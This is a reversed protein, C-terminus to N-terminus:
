SVSEAIGCIKRFNKIRYFTMYKGDHFTNSYGTTERVVMVIDEGDYDWDPYQFAHKYASCEANLMERDVLLTDAVTWNVLNASTLIGLVNRAGAVSQTLYLSAICIYTETTKDYKIVFRSISTPLEILGVKSLAVSGISEALALTPKGSGNYTVKLVGAYGSFPSSDLRYILYVEGNIEVPNGEMVDWLHAGVTKGTVSKYWERSLLSLVHNSSSDSVIWNCLKTPDAASPDYGLPDKGRPLIMVGWDLAMYLDGASTILAENVASISSPIQLNRVTIQQTNLNITGCIYRGADINYQTVSDVIYQSYEPKNEATGYFQNIAAVGTFYLQGNWVFLNAWYLNDIPECASSWTKGGDNSVQIVTEHYYEKGAKLICREFSTYLKNGFTVISPSYSVEYYYDTYNSSNEPFYDGEKENDEIVVRSQETDNNPEPMTTSNFFELMRARYDANTYNGDLVDGVFSDGGTPIVIVLGSDYIEVTYGNNHYSSVDVDADVAIGFFKNAFQAPIMVHGNGNQYATASYDNTDLKCIMGNYLAVTKGICFVASLGMRAILADILSQDERANPTITNYRDYEYKTAYTPPLATFNIRRGDIQKEEDVVYPTVTLFPFEDRPIGCISLAIFYEGEDAKYKTLTGDSERINLSTFCHTVASSLDYNRNDATSKVTFGASKYDKSDISAVLRIDYLVTGDQEYSGRTQYGIMKVKENTTTSFRNEAFLGTLEDTTLATNYYRFDDYIMGANTKWCNAYDTNSQFLRLAFEGIPALMESKSGMSFSTALTWDSAKTPEGVCVYYYMTLTSGSIKRVAAVNLWTDSQASYSLTFTKASTNNRSSYTHAATRFTGTKTNYDMFFPRSTGPLRFDVLIMEKGDDVTAKVRSFWTGETGTSQISQLDTSETAFGTKLGNQGGDTMMQLTGNHHSFSTSFSGNMVTLDDSYKGGTAKDSLIDAETNGEFDYHIILHEDLNRISSAAFVTGECFVTLVMSFLITFVVSKLCFRKM